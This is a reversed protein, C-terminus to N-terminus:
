GPFEEFIEEVNEVTEEIVEDEDYINDTAAGRWVVQKRQADILDIVVTGETYSVARVSPGASVYGITNYYPYYYDYWPGSYFGPGYYAYSPAITQMEIEKDYNTRVMVLLDPNQADMRYGQRQLEQNVKNRVSAAVTEDKAFSNSLTDGAPLWAYTKYAKLNVGQVQQTNVDATSCGYFIAAASLLLGSIYTKVRDKM